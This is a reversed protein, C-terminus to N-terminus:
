PEPSTTPRTAPIAPLRTPRMPSTDPTTITPTIPNAPGADACAHEHVVVVTAGVVVAAGVVVVAAGVVVVVSITVVVVTGSDVVEVDISTLGLVVIRSDVVVTGSVPVTTVCAMGLVEVVDIVGPAAVACSGVVPLLV